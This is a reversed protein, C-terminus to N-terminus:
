IRVDYLIQLALSTQKFVRNSSKQLIQISRLHEKGHMKKEVREQYFSQLVTTNTDNHENKTTTITKLTVPQLIHTYIYTYTVKPCFTTKVPFKGCGWRIIIDRVHYWVISNTIESKVSTLLKLVFAASKLIESNKSFRSYM